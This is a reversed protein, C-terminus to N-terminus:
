RNKVGKWTLDHDSDRLPALSKLALVVSEGVTPPTQGLPIRLHLEGGPTGPSHLRVFHHGEEPTVAYCEFQCDIPKM